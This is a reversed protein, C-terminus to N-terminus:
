HATNLDTGLIWVRSGQAASTSSMFGVVVGGPLGGCKQSRLLMGASAERQGPQEWGVDLGLLPILAQNNRGLM